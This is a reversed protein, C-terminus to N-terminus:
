ASKAIVSEVRKGHLLYSMVKPHTWSQRRNWTMESGRCDIVGHEDLYFQSRETGPARDGVARLLPNKHWGPLLVGSVSYGPSCPCMTCGAKLTFTLKINTICPGLIEAFAALLASRLEPTMRSKETDKYVEHGQMRVLLHDMVSAYGYPIFLSGIRVSKNDM